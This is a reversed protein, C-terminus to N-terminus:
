TFWWLEYNPHTLILNLGRRKCKALRRVIRESTGECDTTQPSSAPPLLHQLNCLPHLPFTASLRTVQFKATQTRAPSGTSAFERARKNARLGRDHEAALGKARFASPYSRLKDTVIKTPAFGQTKLLKKTLKRAAKADRHWHDSPRPRTRHLNAAIVPGFKLFWRRLNEYSQGPGARRADGRCRPLELTFRAYLWVSHRIIDAPLRHRKFSLQRM